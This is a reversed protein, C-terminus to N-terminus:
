RFMEGSSARSEGEPFWDPVKKPKFQAGYVIDDGMVLAKRIWPVHVAVTAVSRHFLNQPKSWPCVVQCISCTYGVKGWYILCAEENLKWKWVGRVLTKEGKAIAGSPCNLACKKCKACFDQMGIDVPEDYALPM